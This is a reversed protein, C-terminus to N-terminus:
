GLWELNVWRVGLRVWTFGVFGSSGLSEWPPHVWHYGSRVRTFGVIM